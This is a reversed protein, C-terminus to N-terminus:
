VVNSEVKTMLSASVPYVVFPYDLTCQIHITGIYCDLGALGGKVQFLVGVNVAQKVPQRIHLNV